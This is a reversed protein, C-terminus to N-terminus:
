NGRFHNQAPAFVGKLAGNTISFDILIAGQQPFAVGFSALRGM